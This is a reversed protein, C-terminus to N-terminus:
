GQDFKAYVCATYKNRPPSKRDYCSKLHEIVNPYRRQIEDRIFEDVVKLMIETYKIFNSQEPEM